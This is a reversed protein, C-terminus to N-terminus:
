QTSATIQHNFLRNIVTATAASSKHNENPLSTFYINKSFHTTNDNVPPLIVQCISANAITLANIHL